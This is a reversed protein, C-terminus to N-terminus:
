KRRVEEEGALYSRRSTGEEEGGGCAMVKVIRWRGGGRGM